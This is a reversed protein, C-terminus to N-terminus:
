EPPLVMEVVLAEVLEESNASPRRWRKQDATDADRFYRRARRCKKDTNAKYKDDRFCSSGAPKMSHFGCRVVHVERKGGRQEIQLLAGAVEDAIADNGYLAVPAARRVSGGFVQAGLQDGLAAGGPQNGAVNGGFEAPEAQVMGGLGDDKFLSAIRRQTRHRHVDGCWVFAIHMQELFHGRGSAAPLIREQKQMVSGAGPAPESRLM